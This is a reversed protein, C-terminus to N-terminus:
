KSDLSIMVSQIPDIKQADGATSTLRLKGARDDGLKEVVEHQM